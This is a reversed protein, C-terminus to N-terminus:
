KMKEKEDEAITRKLYDKREWADEGGREVELGEVINGDEILM